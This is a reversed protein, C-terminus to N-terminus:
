CRIEGRLGCGFNKGGIENLSARVCTKWCQCKAPTGEPWVEVLASVGVARRGLSERLNKEGIRNVSPWTAPKLKVRCRLDSGSYSKSGVM